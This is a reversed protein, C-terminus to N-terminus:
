RGRGPKGAPGLTRGLRELAAKLAPEDVDAALSSFLRGTAVPPRRLSQNAPSGDTGSKPAAVADPEIRVKMDRLNEFGPLAGIRGLLETQMLRMRTAWAASDVRVELIGKAYVMPTSHHVLPPSVCQQWITRLRDAGGLYVALRRSITAPLFAGVSKPGSGGVPM